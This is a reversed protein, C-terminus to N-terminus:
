KDKERRYRSVNGGGVTRTERIDDEFPDGEFKLSFKQAM